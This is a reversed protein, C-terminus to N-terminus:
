CSVKGFSLKKEDKGTILIQRNLHFLFKGLRVHEQVPDERNIKNRYKLANEIRVILQEMSFSTKLFNNLMPTPRPKSLVQM